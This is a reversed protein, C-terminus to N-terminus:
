ALLSDGLWERKDNPRRSTHRPNRQAKFHKMWSPILCIGLKGNVGHWQGEQRLELLEQIVRKRSLERIDTLELRLGIPSAATCEQDSVTTFPSADPLWTGSLM